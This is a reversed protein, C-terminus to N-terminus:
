INHSLILTFSRKLSLLPSKHMLESTSCLPSFLFTATVRTFNTKTYHAHLLNKGSQSYNVVTMGIFHMIHVAM